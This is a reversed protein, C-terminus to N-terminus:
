RRKIQADGHEVSLVVRDLVTGLDGNCKIWSQGQTCQNYLLGTCLESIAYELNGSHDLPRNRHHVEPPRIVPAPLKGLTAKRVGRTLGNQSVFRVKEPLLQRLLNGEKHQMREM